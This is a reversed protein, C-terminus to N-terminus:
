PAVKLRPRKRTRKEADERHRRERDAIAEEAFPTAAEILGSLDYQNTQQGYKQNSRAVRKIIGRKEAVFIRGDPSFAITTPQNLGSIVVQDQFGSPLTAAAVRSPSGPLGPIATVLSVTLACAIPLWPRVSRHSALYPM